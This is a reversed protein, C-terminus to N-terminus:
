FAMTAKKFTDQTNGIIKETEEKMQTPNINPKFVVYIGVAALLSIVIIGAKVYKAIKSM